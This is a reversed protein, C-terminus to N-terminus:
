NAITLAKFSSVADPAADEGNGLGITRLIDLVRNLMSQPAKELLPSEWLRTVVPLIARRHEVIFCPPFTEQSTNEWIKAPYLLYSDNAETVPRVQVLVAYFELISRMLSFSAAKAKQHETKDDDGNKEIVRMLNLILENLVQVGGAESFALVSPLVMFTARAPARNRNGLCTLIAFNAFVRVSVM